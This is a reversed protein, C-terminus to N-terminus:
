RGASDSVPMNVAVGELNLARSTRAVLHVQELDGSLNYLPQGPYEEAVLVSPSGDLASGLFELGIWIPRVVEQEVLIEMCVVTSSQPRTM